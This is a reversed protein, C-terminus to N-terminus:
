NGPNRKVKVPEGPLGASTAWWDTEVNTAATIATSSVVTNNDVAYTGAGGTGSILQTIQTGTVVSTGSITGGVGFVGAVTGGVTMIGYTGSITTSAVTQEPISLAYTGDAGPLGTTGNGIQGVIKTGTTVGTGSITTGPRITGTIGGAPVTLVNGAISGTFSSTAAAISSASGSATAPAGALAFTAKGDAFNAYAKMGPQCATAGDNKMWFDASSIVTCQFGAPLFMSYQELYHTILGEMLRPVIGQPKGFGSNNAAAPAGDGDVWYNSVWAFRGAFLGNPGAVLGGPGADVSYVPNTSAFDGPIGAAPQVGVQNQVGSNM